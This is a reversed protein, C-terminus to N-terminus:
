TDALDLALRGRDTLQQDALTKGQIDFGRCRSTELLVLGAGPVVLLAQPFAAEDRRVFKAHAALIAGQEAACAAGVAVTFNAVGQEGRFQDLRGAAADLALIGDAGADGAIEADVMQLGARTVGAGGSRVAPKTGLFVGLAGPEALGVIAARGALVFSWILSAFNGSTTHSHRCLNGGRIGGEPGEFTRGSTSAASRNRCCRSSIARSRSRACRASCSRSASSARIWRM